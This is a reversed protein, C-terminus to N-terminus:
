KEPVIMSFEQNISFIQTSCHIVYHNTRHLYNTNRRLQQQEKNEFGLCFYPNRNVDFRFRYLFLSFLLLGTSKSMFIRLLILIRNM